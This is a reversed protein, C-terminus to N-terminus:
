GKNAPRAKKNKEKKNDTDPPRENDVSIWNTLDDMMMKTLRANPMKLLKETRVIAICARQCLKPQTNAGHPKPLTSAHTPSSVIMDKEYKVM